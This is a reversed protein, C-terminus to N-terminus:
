QFLFGSATVNDNPPWVESLQAISNYLSPTNLFCPTSTKPVVISDTTAVSSLSINQSFNASILSGTGVLIAVTLTFSASVAALSIPYGTIQLAAYTLLILNQNQLYHYLVLLILLYPM